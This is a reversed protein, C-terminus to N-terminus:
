EVESLSDWPIDSYIDDTKSNKINAQAKTVDNSLIECPVAKRKGPPKFKYISGVEPVAVEEAGSNITAIILEAVDAWSDPEQHDVGYMEAIAILKKSSESDGGAADAVEGLAVYDVESEEKPSEPADEKPTASSGVDTFGEDVEGNSEVDYECHGYWNEYVRGEPYKETKKKGRKTGFKTYPMAVKIADALGELENEFDNLDISDTDVGLKRMENLVDDISEQFTKFDTEEMTLMVSTQRGELVEGAFEQPEKITARAFFYPVKVGSREFDAFGCDSVQAIGGRIDPPLPKFDGGGAGKTENGKTNAVAERGADGLGALASTKTKAM